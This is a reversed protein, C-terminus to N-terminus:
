YNNPNGSGTGAIHAVGRGAMNIPKNYSKTANASPPLKVGQVRTNPKKSATTYRSQRVRTPHQVEPMKESSFASFGGIRATESGIHPQVEPKMTLHTQSGGTFKGSNSSAAGAYFSHTPTYGSHSTGTGYSRGTGSARYGGSSYSRGGNGGNMRDAGNMRGAGNAGGYHYGSGSGSYGGSYGSRGAQYRGGGSNGSSGSYGGYSRNQASASGAALPAVLLAAFALRTIWNEAFTRM